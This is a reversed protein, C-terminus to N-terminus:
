KGVVSKATDIAGKLTYQFQSAEEAVKFKFLYTDAAGSESLTTVSVHKDANKRCTSEKWVPINLIVKTAPGNPSSERRQVLRVRKSTETEGPKQLLKIPGIGLETWRHQPESPDKATVDADKSADKKDGDGSSSTATSSKEFATSPAVSPHAAPSPKVADPGESAKNTDKTEGDKTASGNTLSKSADDGNVLVWKYSKGRLSLLNVEDEEGTKLDVHDADPLVVAPTSSAPAAPSSSNTADGDTKPKMGAFSFPTAGGTASGFLPKDTSVMKASAGSNTSVFGGFGGGTSIKAATGFGSFGSSSGFVSGTTSSSAAGFGSPAINKVAGFGMAMGSGFVKTTTSSSTNKEGASASASSDATLKTAAFPNSSPKSSTAAAPANDGEEKKPEAASAAAQPRKVKLIKRQALVEPAAKQFPQNLTAPTADDDGDDDDRDDKTIQRDATRKKKAAPQQEPAPQEQNNEAPAGSASSSPQEEKTPQQEVEVEKTKDADEKSPSTMISTQNINPASYRLCIDLSPHDKHHSSLFTLVQFLRRPSESRM